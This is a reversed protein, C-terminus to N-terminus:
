GVSGHLDDDFIGEFVERGEAIVLSPSRGPWAPIAVEGVLAHGALFAGILFRLWQAAAEAPHGVLVLCCGARCPVWPSAVAPQGPWIRAVRGRGADEVLPRASDRDPRHAVARHRSFGALFDVDGPDIPPSIALRDRRSDRCTPMIM